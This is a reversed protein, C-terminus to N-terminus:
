SEIMRRRCSISRASHCRSISRWRHIQYHTGFVGNNEPKQIQYICPKIFNDNQASGKFLIPHQTEEIFISTTNRNTTHICSQIHKEM